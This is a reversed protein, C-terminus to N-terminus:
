VRVLDDYNVIMKTLRGMLEVFVSARERALKCAFVANFGTMRDGKLRVADGNKLPQESAPEDLLVYGRTDERRRINDVVSECVQVPTGARKVVCAVGPASRFYFAGRGDNNVFVYRAFLPRAVMDVRGAHARRTLVRPYYVSFKDNKLFKCAYDECNPKTQILYFREAM